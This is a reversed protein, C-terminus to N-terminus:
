RIKDIVEDAQFEGKKTLSFAVGEKTVEKKVIHSKVMRTNLNGGDFWSGFQAGWDELMVKVQAKTQNPRIRLAVVVLDQTEIKKVKSIILAEINDSTRIDVSNGIALSDELKKVRKELSELRDEISM